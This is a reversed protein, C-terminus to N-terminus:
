STDSVVLFNPSYDLAAYATTNEATSDLVM